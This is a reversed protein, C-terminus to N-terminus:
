LSKIENSSFDGKRFKQKSEPRKLFEILDKLIEDPVLIRDPMRSRSWRELKESHGELEPRWPQLSKWVRGPSSRKAPGEGVGVIVDGNERRFCVAVTASGADGYGNVRWLSLCWSLRSGSRVSVLMKIFSQSSLIKRRSDGNADNVLTILKTAMKKTSNSVHM